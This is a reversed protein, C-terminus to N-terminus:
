PRPTAMLGEIVERLQDLAVSESLYRHLGEAHERWVCRSRYLVSPIYTQYIDVSVTGPASLRFGAREGRVAYLATLQDWSARDVGGNYHHFAKAVPHEHPQYARCLGSGTNVKPGFEGGQFVIQGPWADLVVGTAYAYTNFNFEEGGCPFEGAMAVLARSKRRVLEVGDLPSHECPGSQLLHALNNLFGVTVFTVSNDAAQALIRRYVKWSDPLAAHDSYSLPFAAAVQRTYPSVRKPDRIVYVDRNIGLAVRGRGYYTNIADVCRAADVGDPGRVSTCVGVALLTCEGLTMLGHLLALAGADDVDLAIDTDFIIAVPSTNAPAAAHPTNTRSM